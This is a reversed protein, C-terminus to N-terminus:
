VINLIAGSAKLSHFGVRVIAGTAYDDIAADVAFKNPQVMAFESSDNTCWPWAGSIAVTSLVRHKSLCFVIKHVFGLRSTKNSM